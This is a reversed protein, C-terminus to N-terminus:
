ARSSRRSAPIPVVHAVLSMSSIGLVLGFIAIGIPLGMAIVSGFAVLLIVIAAVLGILESIGAESDEFAFFLDGDLEIEAAVRRAARRRVGEPARPRRPEAGRDGSVPRPHHRRPRRALGPAPTSCTRCPPSAAGFARRAASRAPSVSAARRRDARHPRGAGFRGRQARRPGARLRAGPVHFTDELDRGFGASAAVVLVAVALWAGVTAFSPPGRPPRPSVPRLVHRRDDRRAAATFM